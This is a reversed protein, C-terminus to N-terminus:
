EWLVWGDSGVHGREPIDAGGVEGPVARPEKGDRPDTLGEVWGGRGVGVGREEAQLLAHARERPLKAARGQPRLM